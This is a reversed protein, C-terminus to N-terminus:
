CLVEIGRVRFVEPNLESVALFSPWAHNNHALSPSFNVSSFVDFNALVM